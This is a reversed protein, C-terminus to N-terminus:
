KQHRVSKSSTKTVKRALEVRRSVLYVFVLDPMEDSICSIRM